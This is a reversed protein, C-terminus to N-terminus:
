GLKPFSGKGGKNQIWAWHEYVHAAGGAAHVMWLQKSHTYLDPGLIASFDLYREM